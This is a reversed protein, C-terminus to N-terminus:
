PLHARICQLARFIDSGRGGPSISMSSALAYVDPLLKVIIVKGFERNESLFTDSINKIISYISRSLPIGRMVEDVLEATKRGV